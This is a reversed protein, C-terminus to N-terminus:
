TSAPRRYLETYIELRALRRGACSGDAIPPYLDDYLGMDCGDRVICMLPISSGSVASAASRSRRRWSPCWAAAQQRSCNAGDAVFDNQMDVVIMATKSPDLRDFRYPM